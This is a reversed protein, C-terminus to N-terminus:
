EDYANNVIERYMAQSILRIGTAQAVDKPMMVIAEELREKPVGMEKLNPLGVAKTFARYHASVMKGLNENSINDPISLGMAEAAIKLREPAWEAYLELLRGFGVACCAGHPLHFASGLSHGIAHSAHCMAGNIAAGAMTASLALGGRAEVDKLDKVLRPLYKHILRIAKEGFAEAYPEPQAHVIAEVAHTYADFACAVTPFLPMGVYLLPDVIAVDVYAATGFVGGKKHTASDTIVAGMTSESGTGATTPLVLIPFAKENARKSFWSKVAGGHKACINAAKATDISSGGGVAVFGDIGKEVAIATAEDVVNDPPDPLVGDFLTVEMGANQLNEIIPDVVGANKVGKDCVLMVKTMGLEKAKMGTRLSAGEGFILPVSHASTSIM